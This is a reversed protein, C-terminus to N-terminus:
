EAGQWIKWSAEAQAYLMALGNQVKAGQQQALKLFQTLEPNYVLDYCFHQQSLLLYPVDPAADVNPAMGLPTTNVILRHNQLIGKTLQKYTLQGEQPKRSVSSPKIGMDILAAVVAKASGGTGLVLAAEVAAGALFARLTQKFGIYDTNYASVKGNEISLTNAAGIQQVAENQEQVYKLVDSKYPITVNLGRLDPTNALLEPLEAIDALEYLEYEHPLGLENFKETFYKKSFSHGLKKGILGFTAM